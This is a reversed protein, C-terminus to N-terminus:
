CDLARGLSADSVAALYSERTDAGQWRVGPPEEDRSVPTIEIGTRLRM